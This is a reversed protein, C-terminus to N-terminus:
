IVRMDADAFIKFGYAFQTATGNGSYSNLNTSSSITM